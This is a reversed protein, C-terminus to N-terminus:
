IFVLRSNKNKTLEIFSKLSFLWKQQNSKYTAHIPEPIVLQLDFSQMEETQNESISPQLTLLHKNDIKEAESLVQRWRDKCSSKVGLMTLNAIPFMPNHYSEIDPFIFDPKKRNETQKGRSYTVGHQQFLEELHNELAHGVRSKRRNQVSLSLCIFSEVDDFGQKIKDDLIHSELTRFLEEERNMWELLVIDPESIVPLDILTERAFLSFEKTSPFSDGFKDLLKDLWNDSGPIEIGLEELIFRESFGVESSDQNFTRSTFSLQAIDDLGFLWRIQQEVTTDPHTIIIMVSNDCRKGIMMFDSESMRNTVNNTQYYLRCEPSRNPNSARSDYWTVFGEISESDDEDEGLFIYTASLQIKESGPYGMVPTFKSPIGFEHGHSRAPEADVASLYKATVGTFYDSLIERSM